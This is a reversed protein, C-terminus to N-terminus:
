GTVRTAYRSLIRKLTPAWGAASNCMIFKLIHERAVTNVGGLMENSFKDVFTEAPM